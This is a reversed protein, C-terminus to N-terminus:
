LPLIVNVCFDRLHDTDPEGCPLGGERSAEVERSKESARSEEAAMSQWICLKDVSLDLLVGLDQQKKSKQKKQPHQSEDDKDLAEEVSPTPLITELALVELALIIQLHIERARQELLITKVTENRLQASQCAPISVLRDLWWRHIDTAERPYLGNKGIKDRKSKRSDNEFKAATKIREGESSISNPHETVLAPLTERYKKDLVNLPIVLTRLYEVLRRLSAPKHNSDSFIARARSLPGKAFYALSAKSRYLSEMYQAKISKLLDEPDPSGQETPLQPLEQLPIAQACTTAGDIIEVPPVWPVDKGPSTPKTSVYGPKEVDFLSKPYPKNARHDM